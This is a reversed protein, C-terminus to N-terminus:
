SYKYVAVTAYRIIKGNSNHKYGKVLTNAIHNDLEKNDTPVVMVADHFDENFKEGEQPNITEICNNKLIEDLEKVMINYAVQDFGNTKMRDFDDFFPLLYEIVSKQGDLFAGKYQKDSFKKLNEYDAIARIYKNKYDDLQMKLLEEVTMTVKQCGNGLDEVKSEDVYDTIQKPQTEKQEEKTFDEMDLDNLIHNRWPSGFDDHTNM